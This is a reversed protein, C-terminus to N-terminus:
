SQVYSASHVSLFMWVLMFQIVIDFSKTWQIKLNKAIRFHAFWDDTSNRARGASSWHTRWMAKRESKTRRRTWEWIWKSVRRWDSTYRTKWRRSEWRISRSLTLINQSYVQFPCFNNRNNWGNTCTGPCNHAYLSEFNCFFVFTLVVSM